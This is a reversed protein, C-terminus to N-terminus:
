PSSLEITKTDQLQGRYFTRVTCARLPAGGDYRAVLTKVDFNEWAVPVAIWEVQGSGDAGHWEVSVRAERAAFEREGTQARLRLQWISDKREVGLIKLAPNLVPLGVLGVQGTVDSRAVVVPPNSAAASLGIKVEEGAEVPMRASRHSSFVWVLLAVEAAILLGVCVAAAIQLGDRCCRKQELFASM